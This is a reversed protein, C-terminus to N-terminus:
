GRGRHQPGQTPAPGRASVNGAGPQGSAQAMEPLDAPLGSCFPVERSPIGAPIKNAPAQSGKGGQKPQAPGVAARSALRPSTSQWGWLPMPLQRTDCIDEPSWAVALARHTTEAGGGVLRWLQVAPFELICPELGRAQLLRGMTLWRGSHGCGCCCSEGGAAVGGCGRGCPWM